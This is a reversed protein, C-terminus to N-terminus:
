MSIFIGNFILKLRPFADSRDVMRTLVIAALSSGLLVVPFM